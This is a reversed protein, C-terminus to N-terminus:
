LPPSPLVQDFPVSGLEKLAEMITKGPAFVLANQVFRADPHELAM